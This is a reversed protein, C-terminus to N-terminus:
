LAEALQLTEYIRHINRHINRINRFLAMSIFHFVPINSSILQIPLLPPM